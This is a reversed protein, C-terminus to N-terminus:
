SVLAKNSIKFKPPLLLKDEPEGEEQERVVPSKLGPAVPVEGGSPLSETASEATGESGKESVM